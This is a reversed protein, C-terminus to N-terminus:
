LLCLKNKYIFKFAQYSFNQLTNQLKNRLTLLVHQSNSKLIKCFFTKYNGIKNEKHDSKKM